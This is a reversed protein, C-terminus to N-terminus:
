ASSRKRYGKNRWLPSMEAIKVNPTEDRTDTEMLGMALIGFLWWSQVEIYWSSILMRRAVMAWYSIEIM